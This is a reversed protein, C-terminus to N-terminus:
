GKHVAPAHKDLCLWAGDAREELDVSDVVASLLVGLNIADGEDRQLALTIAEVDVPGIRVDIQGELVTIEVAVEGDGYSACESLVAEVALQLDDLSQYPLDLRAALGGVVIRAIAVYAQDCPMTLTVIDREFGTGAM